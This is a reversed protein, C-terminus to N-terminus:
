AKVIVKLMGKKMAPVYNKGGAPAVEEDKEQENDSVSTNDM